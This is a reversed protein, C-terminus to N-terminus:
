DARQPRAAFLRKIEWVFDMFKEVVKRRRNHQPLNKFYILSLFFSAKIEGDRMELCSALSLSHIQQKDGRSDNDFNHTSKKEKLGCDNTIKNKIEVELGACRLVACSELACVDKGKFMRANNSSTFWRPLICSTHLLFIRVQFPCSSSRGGFARIHRWSRSFLFIKFFM